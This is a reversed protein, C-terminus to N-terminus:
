IPEVLKKKNFYPFAVFSFLGGLLIVGTQVLWLLWGFALGIGKQLGYILMTKELLLAYAGIGGPTIIMGISGASLITFAEQLGYHSTEKLAFFGIYGSLLYLSWILVSYFIFLYKKKLRGISAIGRVVNMFVKIFLSVVDRPGKKKWVMWVIVALIVLAVLIYLIIDATSNKEGTSSSSRFFTDVLQNYIDPQLTFTIVLIILLSIADVIREIIVTGILRDVAIKEYRALVTCKLLEGLRPFALNTLYGIMVAFFTNMTGPTHGVPEILLKWRLARIYHSVFLIVFVPLILLYRADRLATRIHSKDESSLDKISWWVLFIGLGFFFIYQLITLYKKRM